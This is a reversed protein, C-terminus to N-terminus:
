GIRSAWPELVAYVADIAPVDIGHAEARRRVAGHLGELEMRKGHTLDYHLSSYMEDELGAAFDMWRDVADDPLDIGEAVAVACAEEVIRRYMAWSAEASRIEGLPLRVAATMGSQACIFATKEWIERRVDGSLGVDIGARECAEV